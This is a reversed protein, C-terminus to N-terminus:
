KFIVKDCNFVFDMHFPCENKGGFLNNMGLAIHYTGLAKEDFLSHGTLDKIKPNLGIGFECLIRHNDPLSLLFNELQESSCKVLSGDKFTMHVNEYNQGRFIIQPILLKGHSNGEIPAIYIEGPPFDGCGDDAHWQRNSIDLKLSYEKGTVIEISKKGKLAEIKDKCVKKLEKFDVSLANCLIDKYLSYEIGANDANIETPMNLQIYYEKNDTLAKFLGALSKKFMPIDEELIGEPFSPPYMFIDVANKFSSLVEFYGSSINEENRILNLVVKEFFNRSCHHKFPIIGKRSLNESILDLVELDENDGWFNLLVFDGKEFPFGECINSIVDIFDM